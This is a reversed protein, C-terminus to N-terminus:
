GDRTVTGVRKCDENTERGNEALTQNGHTNEAAAHQRVILQCSWKRLVDIPPRVQRQQVDSRQTHTGAAGRRDAASGDSVPRIGNNSNACTAHTHARSRRQWTSPRCGGSTSSGWSRTRCRRLPPHTRPPRPNYNTADHKTHMTHGQAHHPTPAPLVRRLRAFLQKDTSAPLDRASLLRVPM